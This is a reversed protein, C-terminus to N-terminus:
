YQILSIPDCKLYEYLSHKIKNIASLVNINHGITTQLNKLWIGSTEDSNKMKIVKPTEDWKNFQIMFKQLLLNRLEQLDEYSMIMWKKEGTEIEEKYVYLIDRKHHFAQMFMNCEDVRMINSQLAHIFGKVQGEKFLVELNDQSIIISNKIWDDYTQQPKCKDKLIEMVPIKRQQYLHAAHLQKIEAKMKENDRILKSLMRWMEVDSPIESISSNKNNTIQCIYTHSRLAGYTKYKKGCICTGM